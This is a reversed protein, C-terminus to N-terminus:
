RNLWAAAARGVEAVEPWRPEAAFIPDESTPVAGGLVTVRSGRPRWVAPDTPGFVVVCPAGAAAALHSVGSDHGLYLAAEALLAALGPLELSDIIHPATGRRGQWTDAFGKITAEDAPGAILVTQFAHDAPALASALAEYWLSPAWNKRRSGSGPHLAVYPGHIGTEALRRQAQERAGPPPTVWAHSDWGGTGVVRQPDVQDLTRLLWDAAHERAGPPPFPPASALVAVGLRSLNAAV